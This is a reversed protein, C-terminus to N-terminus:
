RRASRERRGGGRGRREGRRRDHGPREPAAGHGRAAAAAEGEGLRFLIVTINDKGGSQNAARVLGNAAEDLSSASRLISAVEEDSIMSTLGDSCILFLDGERGTLTYTDVEVDPEPGLARTIISRQPPARRGRGHDARQAGARGRALPRAHAAVARRGADPLRPQRGRARPEGRRRAGERANAHHGDRPAVRGGSCARLYAQQGRPRHAALQAETPESSEAAAGVAEVAVASAVEGAKAGGMGDAVAFLPPSVFLSDENATRQRGVDTLGAQEVIRLAM